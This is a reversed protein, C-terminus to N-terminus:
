PVVMRPYLFRSVEAKQLGVGPKARDPSDSNWWVEVKVLYGGMFAGSPAALDGRLSERTVRVFYQTASVPDIQYAQETINTATATGSDVAEELKQAAFNMAALGGRNKGNVALLVTFIQITSVLLMAMLGVALIIEALTLGARGRGSVM